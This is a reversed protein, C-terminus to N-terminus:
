VQVAKAAAKGARIGSCWAWHLNFGGCDGAVDLVEGALFLGPQAKSQMTVADVESLTIGGGTVQANDWGQTGTVPFRWAKLTDTLRHLEANTLSAAPRSLPQLGASKLVAYALRKHITGLLLNELTEQQKQRKRLDKFLAENDWEPFLDVLATCTEGKRLRSLRGSLQMAPIGSLGYETFQVEGLEKGLVYTGALLTLGAEARIGKLGGLGNMDCKFAVLAPYLSTCSHGMAKALAYGSGDSGLKSAAKGGCTLIVADATLTQGDGTKVAYKGKNRGIGTVTCNCQVHIKLRDLAQLLVDLVMSAQKCYPYVRGEDEEQCLLGLSDFFDLVNQPEMGELIRKLAGKDNSYFHAFSAGMNTLNCRGNGTALIKKGVRDMRELITIRAAPNERAAVIAAAIGAAGGGIVLIHKM